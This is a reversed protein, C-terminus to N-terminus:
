GRPEPWSLDLIKLRVKKGIKYRKFKFLKRILWGSAIATTGIVFTDMGFDFSDTTFHALGGFGFWAVGFTQLMYGTVTAWPRTRRIETIDALKIMGGDSLIIKETDMLRKITIQQWDEPFDKTKFMLSQGEYYKIPKQETMIEVYLVVQATTISPSFNFSLALIFGILFKLSGSYFGM